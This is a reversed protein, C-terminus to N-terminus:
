PQKALEVRRNKARGEENDNSSVPKSAGFGKASLRSAEVGQATLAAVVSDARSQSLTVNREQTGTNDTHGGIQLKLAPEQKMAKSIEAIVGTSEPKIDSKDVDFYIGYLDVKGTSNLAGLIYSMNEKIMQNKLAKPTLIDVAIIYDGTKLSIEPLDKGAIKTKEKYDRISFGNFVRVYIDGAADTKKMLIAKGDRAANGLNEPCLQYTRCFGSAARYSDAPWEKVKTFGQSTLSQEYNRIIELDTVDGSGTYLLALIRGAPTPKTDTGAFEAYSLRKKNYLTSGEFKFLDFPLAEDASAAAPAAPEAALTPQTFALCLALIVAMKKM